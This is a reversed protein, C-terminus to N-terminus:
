ALDHSTNARCGFYMPFIKGPYVDLDQVLLTARLASLISNHGAPHLDEPRYGLVKFLPDTLFTRAPFGVVVSGGPRVVRSLEILAPRPDVFHELVSVCVASDFLDEKYPIDLIDGKRLELRDIEVGETELMKLVESYDDHLDIGAVSESRALLEKLLIGSGIGVELVRGTSVQDLLALVMSLRKRYFWSAYWSYYLDVLHYDESTHNSIASEMAERSPLDLGM